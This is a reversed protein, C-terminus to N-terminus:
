FVLNSIYSHYVKCQIIIPIKYFFVIVNKAQKYHKKKSFSYSYQIKLIGKFDYIRYVAELYHFRPRFCTDKGKLRLDIKVKLIMAQLWSRRWSKFWPPLHILFFFFKLKKFMLACVYLFSSCISGGRAVGKRPAVDIYTPLYTYLQM